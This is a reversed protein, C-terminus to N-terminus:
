IKIIMGENAAMTDPFIERAEALAVKMDTSKSYHGIVLRGVGAERAVIAAQRATSHGRPAALRAKEETYTAEHYLVSVGRVAEVISDIGGM